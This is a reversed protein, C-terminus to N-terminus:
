ERELEETVVISDSPILRKPVERDLHMRPLMMEPLWKSVLMDLDTETQYKGNQTYDRNPSVLTDTQFFVVQAYRRGVVLVIPHFRANNTIELTYRNVYGVDGFGACKCTSLMYRGASSRTKLMSTVCNRGGIFEETHALITEGPSLIIIRDTEVIGKGLLDSVHPSSNKLYESVTTAQLLEGWVQQAADPHFTNIVSVNIDSERYFYRGLHVDYSCTGLSDRDFPHIVINGQEKHYLVAKDSLCSHSPAPEPISM